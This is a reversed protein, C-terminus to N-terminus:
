TSSTPQSNVVSAASSGTNPIRTRTQQKAPTAEKGIEKGTGAELTGAKQAKALAPDSKLFTELMLPILENVSAADGYTDRYLVAYAHLDAKLKASASFAIKTTTRDPLKALRLM